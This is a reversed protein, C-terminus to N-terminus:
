LFLRPDRLLGAGDLVSVADMTVGILLNAGMRALAEPPRLVEDRAITEVGRAADALIGIEERGEGLVILRSLDTLGKSSLGILRLLDFVPLLEGRLNTVGLLFESAGPVATFDTFRTVERITRTELAYTEGALSFLLLEFRDGPRAEATSPRALARAREELITRTREAGSVVAEDSDSM